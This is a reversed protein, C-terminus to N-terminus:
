KFIKIFIGILMLILGFSIITIWEPPVMPFLVTLFEVVGSPIVDIVDLLVDGFLSLLQTLIDLLKGLMAGLFTGIKDLFNLISDLFSGSSDTDSGSSGSGSGSGGSGSGSGYYNNYNTNYETIETQTVSNDTVTGPVYNPMFQGVSGGATGKKMDSVTKFVPISGAFASFVYNSNPIVGAEYFNSSIGMFASIAEKSTWDVASLDFPNELDEFRHYVGDVDVYQIFGCESTNLVHFCICEFDSTWDEEFMTVKSTSISMGSASVGAYPVNFCFVKLGSLYSSSTKNGNDDYNVVECTQPLFLFGKDPHNKILNCVLTYATRNNFFSADIYEPPVFYANQYTAKEEYIDKMGNVVLMADDSFVYNGDGDVTIENKFYEEMDSESLSADNRFARYESLGLGVVGTAVSIATLILGITVPDMAYVKKPKCIVNFCLIISLLFFLFKLFSHRIIDSFSTLFSM